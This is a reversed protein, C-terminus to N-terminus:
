QTISIVTNMQKKTWPRLDVVKIPVGEKNILVVMHKEQGWLPLWGTATPSSALKRYIEVRNNARELDAFNYARALIQSYAEDIPYYFAPQHAIKAGVRNWLKLDDIEQLTGVPKAAVWKPGTLSLSKYELSAKALYEPEIDNIRVIEFRNNYFALWVPRAQSLSYVGYSFAAIQIVVIVLTDLLLSKKNKKYVILTLVPGTFLTVIVIIAFIIFVGTAQALPIPYWVKFILLALAGVVLLSVSLHIVAAKISDAWIRITQQAM